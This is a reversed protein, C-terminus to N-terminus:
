WLVRFVEREGERCLGEGEIDTHRNANCCCIGAISTMM